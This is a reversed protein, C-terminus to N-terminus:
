NGSTGGTLPLTSIHKKKEESLFMFSEQPCASYANKLHCGVDWCYRSLPLWPCAQKLDPHAPPFVALGEAAEHEQCVQGPLSREPSTVIPPSIVATKLM